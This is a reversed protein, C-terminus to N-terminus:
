LRAGADQLEFDTAGTTPRGAKPGQSLQLIGAYTGSQLDTTDVDVGSTSAALALNPSARHSAAPSNPGPGFPASSITITEGADLLQPGEGQGNVDAAGGPIGVISGRLTQDDVMGVAGRCCNGAFADLHSDPGSSLAAKPTQEACLHVPTLVLCFLILSTQWAANGKSPPTERSEFSEQSLILARAIHARWHTAKLPLPIEFSEEAFLNKTNGPFLCASITAWVIVCDSLLTAERMYQADLRAKAVKFQTEYVKDMQDAPLAALLAEENRFALTAAGTIGPRASLFLGEHHALKPRPGVISMDGRLVNWLQPLEDLKYRRLFAGVATIRRDGRVTILSGAEISNVKMSRFKFLTFEM